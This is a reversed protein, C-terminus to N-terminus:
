AMMATYILYNNVFHASLGFGNSKFIFGGITYIMGMVFPIWLLDFSMGYAYWHYLGFALNTLILAMISYMPLKVSKFQARMTPFLGHRFFLEETYVAAVCILWFNADSIISLPTAISLNGKTVMLFGFIGGALLAIVFAKINKGWGNFGLFWTSEKNTDTIVIISTVVIFGFLFNTIAYYEFSKINGMIGLVIVMAFMLSIAGLAIIGKGDKWERFFRDISSM